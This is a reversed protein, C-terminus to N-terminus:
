CRMPRALTTPASINRPHEHSHLNNLRQFKSAMASSGHFIVTLQYPARYPLVTNAQGIPLLMRILQLGLFSPICFTPAQILDFTLPELDGQM